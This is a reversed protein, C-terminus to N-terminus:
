VVTLSLPALGTIGAEVKSGRFLPGVGAPTGTLFVDGAALEVSQSAFAIVDAVPWIMDALDADQRVEQDVRCWIHGSAHGVASVRRLPSLPASQDFGKAFDWPRRAAKAERQLDRRTLDLATAYGFVHDLATAPPIDRGGRALAVALEVEHHLEKTQPPYRVEAGDNPGADIVADAPKMFFFPPEREPDSGMERAHAAYNRGVCFVRRVPFRDRVGEVAVSAQKQPPVVYSMATM